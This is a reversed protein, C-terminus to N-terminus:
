IEITGGSSLLRNHGPISPQANVPISAESVTVNTVWYGVGITATCKIELLGKKFHHPETQFGLGLISTELGDPEPVPIYEIM